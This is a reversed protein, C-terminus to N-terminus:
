PAKISIEEQWKRKFYEPYKKAQGDTTDIHWVKLEEVYGVPIKQTYLWSCLDDDQGWALPLNVPFRYQQYIDSTLWHCLGGVIGTRGIRYKGITEYYERVPQRRIGEVYPSLLISRNLQQMVETMELFLNSSLLQCDNDMKVIYDYSIKSQLIADLAQNSSLSIGLNESNYFVWSFKHRYKELWDKTNDQSYNDVVYHDIEVGVQDWLSDFAQQTYELRERVLTYVAIKM